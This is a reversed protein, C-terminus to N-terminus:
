ELYIFMRNQETMKTYSHYLKFDNMEDACFFILIAIVTKFFFLIKLLKITVQKCKPLFSDQKCVPYGFESLRTFGVCHRIFHVLCGPMQLNLGFYFYLLVLFMGYRLTLCLEPKKLGTNHLAAAFSLERRVCMCVLNCQTLLTCQM